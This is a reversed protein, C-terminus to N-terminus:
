LVGIRQLISKIANQTEEAVRQWGNAGIYTAIHRRIDPTVHKYGEFLGPTAYAQDAVVVANYGCKALLSMRISQDASVRLSRSVDALMRDLRVFGHGEHACRWLDDLQKMPVPVGQSRFGKSSILNSPDNISNKVSHVEVESEIGVALFVGDPGKDEPQVNPASCAFRIGQCCQGETALRTWFALHESLTNRFRTVSSVVALVDPDLHGHYIVVDHPLQDNTLSLIM